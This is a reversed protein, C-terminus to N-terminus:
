HNHAALSEFGSGALYALTGARVYEHEVRVARHPAAPLSAHIRRRAQAGPKEDASIVYEDAGLATGGFVRQYLDLV